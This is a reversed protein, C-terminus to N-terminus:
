SSVTALWDRYPLIGGHPPWSGPPDSVSKEDSSEVACSHERVQPAGFGNEVCLTEKGVQQERNHEESWSTQDVSPQVAGDSIRLDSRM